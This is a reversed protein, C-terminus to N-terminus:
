AFPPIWQRAARVRLFGLLGPVPEQAGLDGELFAHLQRQQAVTMENFDFERARPPGIVATGNSIFDEWASRSSCLELPLGLSHLIKENRALWDQWKREALHDSKRRYTMVAETRRVIRPNLPPAWLSARGPCRARIWRVRAKAQECAAM